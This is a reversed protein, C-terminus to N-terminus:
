SSRGFRFCVLSVLVELWFVLVWGWALAAVWALLYAAVMFVFNVFCSMSANSASRRMTSALLRLVYSSYVLAVSAIADPTNRPEAKDDMGSRALKVM